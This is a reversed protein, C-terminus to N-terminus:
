PASLPLHVSIKIYLVDATSEANAHINKVTHALTIGFYPVKSSYYKFEDFLISKTRTICRMVYGIYM